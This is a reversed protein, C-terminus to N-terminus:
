CEGNINFFKLGNWKTGTIKQAVASLSKFVVGDYSFGEEVVTVEIMKGKYEKVIKTGVMPTYKRNRNLHNAEYKLKKETESDIGGYALEQIKYALKPIMYSKTRFAPPADFMKTWLKDLEGFSMSKLALIQKIVLLDNKNDYQNM